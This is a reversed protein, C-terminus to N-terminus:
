EDLQEQYKKLLDPRLKGTLKIQEQYRWQDIKAHNGSLLIDPVKMGRYEAPRTYQPYELLDNNFSEDTLSEHNGLVGPIYRCIVDVFVAGALEGGTLIFDGISIEHDVLHDRVRQDVGEYRGCLLLYNEGSTALRKAVPTSLQEGTPSFLIVKLDGHVSKIHEIADFIPEPKLLLGAGGGYVHDDICRHKDKSFDRINYHTIQFLEQALGRRIISHSFPSEFIEPFVSLTVFQIM